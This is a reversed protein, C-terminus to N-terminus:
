NDLYKGLLLDLRKRTAEPIVEPDTIVATELANACPCKREAPINKVAEAIIEKSLAVNKRMIELVAEITVDESAENWCDYDTSLALTSYCIEAERALKAEPANTM